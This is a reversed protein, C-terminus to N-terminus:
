VIIVKRDTCVEFPQLGLRLEVQRPASQKDLTLRWDDRCLPWIFNVEHSYEKLGETFVETSVSYFIPTPLHNLVSFKVHVQEPGEELEIDPAFVFRPRSPHAFFRSFERPVRKPM